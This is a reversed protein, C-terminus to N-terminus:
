PESEQWSKCRVTRNGCVHLCTSPLFCCVGVHSVGRTTLQFNLEEVILMINCVGVLCPWLEKRQTSASNSGMLALSRCFCTWCCCSHMGHQQCIETYSHRGYVGRCGCLATSLLLVSVWEGCGSSVTCVLLHGAIPDVFCRVYWQAGLSEVQKTKLSLGSLLPLGLESPLM